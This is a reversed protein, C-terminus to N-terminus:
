RGSELIDPAVQEGLTQSTVCEPHKCGCITDKRIVGLCLHTATTCAECVEPVVVQEFVEVKKEGLAEARRGDYWIVYEGLVYQKPKPAAQLANRLRINDAMAYAAKLNVCRLSEVEEEFHDERTHGCSYKPLNSM